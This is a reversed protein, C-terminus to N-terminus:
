FLCFVSTLLEKMTIFDVIDPSLKIAFPDTVETTASEKKMELIGYCLFLTLIKEIKTAAAVNKLYIYQSRENKQYLIM